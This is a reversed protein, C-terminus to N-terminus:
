LEEGVAGREGAVSVRGEEVPGEEESVEDARVGGTDIVRLDAAADVGDGLESRRRSRRHRDLDVTKTLDSPQGRRERPEDARERQEGDTVRDDGRHAAAPALERDELREAEGPTLDRAVTSHCAVVSPATPTTIPIGAPITTPRITHPATAAASPTVAEGVAGATARM